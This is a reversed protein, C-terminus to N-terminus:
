NCAINQEKIKIRLKEIPADIFRIVLYGAFVCIILGLMFSGVGQLSMGVVPKSWLVM